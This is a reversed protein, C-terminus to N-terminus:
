SWRIKPVYKTREGAESKEDTAEMRAKKTSTMEDKQNEGRENNDIEGRRSENETTFKPRRHRM